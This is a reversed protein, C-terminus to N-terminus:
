GDITSRDRDQVALCKYFIVYKKRVLRYKNSGVSTVGSSNKGFAKTDWHTVM